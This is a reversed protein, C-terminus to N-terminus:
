KKGIILIMLELLLFVERMLDSTKKILYLSNVYPKGVQEHDLPIIIQNLDLMGTFRNLVM